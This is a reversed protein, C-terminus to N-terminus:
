DPTGIWIAICKVWDYGNVIEEALREMEDDTKGKWEEECRKDMMTETLDEFDDAKFYIRDDSHWYEDIRAKGWSGMWSSYDDGGVVEYYVMPVIPLEPNEQILRILEKSNANM